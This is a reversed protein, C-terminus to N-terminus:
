NHIVKSGHTRPKQLVKKCIKTSKHLKYLYVFLYTRKLTRVSRRRYKRTYFISIGGIGPTYIKSSILFGNMKKFCEAQKLKTDPLAKVIQLLRDTTHFVAVTDELMELCTTKHSLIYVGPIPPILM